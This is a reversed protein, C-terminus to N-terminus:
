ISRSKNSFTFDFGIAYKVQMNSYIKILYFQTKIFIYQKYYKQPRLLEVFVDM